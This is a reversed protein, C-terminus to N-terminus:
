RRLIHVSAVDHPPLHVRCGSPVAARRHRAEYAGRTIVAAYADTCWGAGQFESAVGRGEVDARLKELFGEDPLPKFFALARVGGAFGVPKVAGEDESVGGAVMVEM